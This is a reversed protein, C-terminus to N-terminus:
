RFPQLPNLVLSLIQIVLIKGEDTCYRGNTLVSKLRANYENNISWKQTGKINQLAKEIQLTFLMVEQHVHQM